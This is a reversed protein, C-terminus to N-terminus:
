YNSILIKKSYTKGSNNILVYYLGKPASSLEFDIVNPAITILNSIKSGITNYINVTVLGNLEHLDITFKGNNPNPYIIINQQKDITEKFTSTYTNASKFDNNDAIIESASAVAQVFNNCYTDNTTIYANVSSGAQAYFGPLFRISEGAIFNASALDEVIVTYGNGAVTLQNTANFCESTGNSITQNSVQLNEPVPNIKYNSIVAKTELFTVVNNANVADGTAAGIYITNPDSFYPVRTHTIGDSFYQGNEYTMITCYKGNDTGTWRGGASWTNDTWNWWETPGPQTNQTKHHHAGMNHGIEHIVTYTWSAQQVRTLSFGYSPSGYKNNLLWGLGGTFDTEELLVVLDAYYDNRWTHVEDMYGDNTNTLNDLDTNNHLEVYNVQASHVLDLTIGLNSNDLALQSKNMISAITNSIGGENTAAWSAAAPTYVIMLSIVVPGPDSLPANDAVTESGIVNEKKKSLTSTGNVSDAPPIMSPVNEIEDNKSKDVEILLHNGLQENYFLRYTADKEPLDVTMLTKGNNSSIFVYSYDLGEIKARLISSNNIDLTTKEIIAKYKTNNFLELILTDNIEIKGHKQLLPNVILERVRKANNPLPTNADNMLLIKNETNEDISLNVAKQSFVSSSLLLSFLLPLVLLRM